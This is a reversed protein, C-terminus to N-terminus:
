LSSKKTGGGVCFFVKEGDKREEEGNINIILTQRMFALASKFPSFNPKENLQFLKEKAKIIKEGKTTHSTHKQSVEKAQRARWFDRSEILYEM